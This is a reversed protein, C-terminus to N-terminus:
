GHEGGQNEIIEVALDRLMQQARVRECISCGDDHGMDYADDAPETLSLKQLLVLVGGRRAVLAIEDDQLAVLLAAAAEAAGILVLLTDRHVVATPWNNREDLAIAATTKTVADAAQEDTLPETM